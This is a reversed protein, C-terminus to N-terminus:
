KAVATERRRRMEALYRDTAAADPIDGGSPRRAPASFKNVTKCFASFAHACEQNFPSADAFFAAIRPRLEEITLTTLGHDKALKYYRREIVFTGKYHRARQRAFESVVERPTLPDPPPPPEAAPPAAKVGTPAPAPPAAGLLGDYGNFEVRGNKLVRCIGCTEGASFAQRILDPGADLARALAARNVLAETHGDPVDRAVVLLVMRHAPSLPHAAM